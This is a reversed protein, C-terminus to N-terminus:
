LGHYKHNMHAHIHWHIGERAASEGEAGDLGNVSLAERHARQKTVPLRQQLANALPKAPRDPIPCNGWKLPGASNGQMRM